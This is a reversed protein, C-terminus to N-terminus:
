CAPDAGGSPTLEWPVVVDGVVVPKRRYTQRAGTATEIVAASMSMSHVRGGKIFWLLGMQDVRAFPKIKNCGFLDTATWGLGAAKEIVGAGLLHGCDGIFQWWRNLPADGPPCGPHLRALGDVWERLIGADHEVIAVRAKEVGGRATESPRGAEARYGETACGVTEGPERRDANQQAAARSLGDRCFVTATNPPSSGQSGCFDLGEALVALTESPTATKPLDPSDDGSAPQNFERGDRRVGRFVKREQEPADDGLVALNAPESRLGGSLSGIPPRLPNGTNRRGEPFNEELLAVRTKITPFGGNQSPPSLAAREDLLAILEQKTDRAQQVVLQPIRRKGARLILRDGDRELRAGLAQLERIINRALSM